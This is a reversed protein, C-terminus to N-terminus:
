KVRFLPQGFQIPAGNEVLVEVIIGPVGAKIENM